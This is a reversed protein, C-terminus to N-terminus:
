AAGKRGAADMNDRVACTTAWSSPEFAVAALEPRACRSRSGKSEFKSKAGRTTTTAPKALGLVGLTSAGGRRLSPTVVTYNSEASARSGRGGRTPRTSPGRAESRLRCEGIDVWTATPRASRILVFTGLGFRLTPFFGFFTFPFLTTKHLHRVPCSSPVFQITFTTRGGFFRPVARQPLKAQVPLNPIVAILAVPWSEPVIVSQDQEIEGAALRMVHVANGIVDAPRKQGSPGKLM